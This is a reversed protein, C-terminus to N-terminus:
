RSFVVVNAGTERRPRNVDRFASATGVITQSTPRAPAPFLFDKLLSAELIPPFFVSFAGPPSLRQPLCRPSLDRVSRCVRVSLRVSPRTFLRAHSSPPAMATAGGSDWGMGLAAAAAAFSTPFTCRLCFRFSSFAASPPTPFVRGNAANLRKTPKTRDDEDLGTLRPM